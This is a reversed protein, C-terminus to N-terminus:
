FCKSKIKSKTTKFSVVNVNHNCNCVICYISISIYPVFILYM